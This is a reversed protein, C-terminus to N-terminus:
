LWSEPVHIRDGAQLELDALKGTQVRDLNIDITKIGEQTQRIIKTRNPASFKAFGGAIICASLATMGPQYDFVGPNKVKGEVYIKSQSQDLKRGLPIYITDGSELTINESMDGKDLLKLLDVRLPEKRAINEQLIKEDMNQKDMGRLVYAINGRESLVGGASAVLDMVTPTFDLEFMGPNKVAGSIFFQLSHYEKIQIHVQPDVFFDKELPVMVLDEFEGLTLSSAKLRGIFPVNVDGGHSVALDTKVQEEGGAIITITVIDGPGIRYATSKQTQGAIGRALPLLFVLCLILILPLSLPTMLPTLSRKNHNNM